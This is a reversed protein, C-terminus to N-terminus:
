HREIQALCQRDFLRGAVRRRFRRPSPARGPSAGIRGGSFFTPLWKLRGFEHVARDDHHEARAAM